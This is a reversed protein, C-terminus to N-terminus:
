RDQSDSDDLHSGSSCRLKIGILSFDTIWKRAISVCATLRIELNICNQVGRVGTEVTGRLVAAFIERSGFVRKASSAVYLHRPGTGVQGRRVVVDVAAVSTGYLNGHM